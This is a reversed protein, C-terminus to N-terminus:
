DIYIDILGIPTNLYITKSDKNIKEIFENIIPILIEKNQYKIQFLDQATNSSIGEIVGIEGLRKDIISFGIYSKIILEENKPAKKSDIYCGKGILSEADQENNIDELKVTIFNNNKFKLSEIFFPVLSINMDVFIFDLEKLEEFYSIDLKINLSGNFGHKRSFYGLYFANSKNM